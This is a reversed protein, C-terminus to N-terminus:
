GSCSPSSYSSPVHEWASSRRVSFWRESTSATGGLTEQLSISFAKAQRPEGVGPDAAVMKTEDAEDVNAGFPAFEGRKELMQRAFPLTANLLGDLDDQAQQSAAKRWSTM